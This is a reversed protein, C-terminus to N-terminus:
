ILQVQVDQLLRQIDKAQCLSTGPTLLAAAGAAMAYRLAQAVDHQKDLAWILGALFSDGAGITSAVDVKLARARWAQQDTVLLAGDEGLSLAVIRAQGQRILGRAAGCWESETTLPLGTLDRLERLSPKVLHVGARLAATLASGSSDIVFLSGQAHAQAAMQAYFDDPVDPPLSGSAIVFRPTGHRALETLCARWETESLKPGPLVFRFDQGSSTEHATFSERTENAIDIAQAPIHEHDLLERLVRGTAGGAAYLALVDAGLRHLVRAVNIGGGGPHTQASACRLKHGPIVQEISTFVDVAPNMTLTLIDTM